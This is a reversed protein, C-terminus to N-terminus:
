LCKRVADVLLRVSQDNPQDFKVYLKGTMLPGLFYFSDFFFLLFFYSFYKEIVFLYKLLFCSYYNIKFLYKKLILDIFRELLYYFLSGLAGAPPWDIADVLVPIIMKNLDSALSFERICNKSTTYGESVIAVVM